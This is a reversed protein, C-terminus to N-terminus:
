DNSRVHHILHRYGTQHLTYGRIISLRTASLLTMCVPRKVNSGINRLLWVPYQHMRGCSPTIVRWLGVSTLVRIHYCQRHLCSPCCVALDCHHCCVLHAPLHCRRRSPSPLPSHLLLSGSLLVLGVKICHLAIFACLDMFYCVVVFLLLLLLCALM